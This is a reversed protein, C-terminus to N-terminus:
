RGKEKIFIDPVLYGMLGGWIISMTPNSTIVCGGTKCGVLSYYTYGGVVGVLTFIGIVLLYTRKNLMLPKFWSTQKGSETVEEQSKTEETM